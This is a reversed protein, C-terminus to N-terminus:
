RHRRWSLRPQHRMQMQRQLGAVVHDELAHLPPMRAGIGNREASLQPPQPRVDHEAGIDDGAERGLGLRHKRAREIEHVVAPQRMQM